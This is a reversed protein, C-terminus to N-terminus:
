WNAIITDIPAYTRQMNSAYAGNCDALTHHTHTTHQLTSAFIKSIRHAIKCEFRVMYIRVNSAYSANWDLNTNIMTSNFFFFSFFYYFLHFLKRLCITIWIAHIIILKARVMRLAVHVTYLHIYYSQMPVFCFYIFFSFYIFNVCNKKVINHDHFIENVYLKRQTHLTCQTRVM